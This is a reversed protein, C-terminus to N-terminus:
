PKSPRFLHVPALVGAGPARFPVHWAQV